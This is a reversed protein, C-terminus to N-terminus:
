LTSTKIVEEGLESALLLLLLFFFSNRERQDGYYYYFLHPFYQLLFPRQVCMEGCLKRGELRRFKSM